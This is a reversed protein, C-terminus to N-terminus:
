EGELPHTRLQTVDLTMWPFLPLTSLLERLDPEDDAKWLGVNERHGRAIASPDGVRWIRVISGAGMLELGREREADALRQREAADLDAPLDISIQVLFEM